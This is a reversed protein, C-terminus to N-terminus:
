KLKKLFNVLQELEEVSANSKLRNARYSIIQVNERTYGKNNDIKDLSPSYDKNEVSFFTFGFVPCVGTYAPYLDRHTINFPLNNSSARIKAWKLLDAIVLRKSLDLNNYDEKTYGYKELYYANIVSKKKEQRITLPKIGTGFLIRHVTSKVIGFREGIAELGMGGLALKHIKRARETREELTLGM